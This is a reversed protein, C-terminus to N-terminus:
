MPGGSVTPVPASAHQLARAALPQLGEPRRDPAGPQRQRRLVHAGALRRAELLVRADRRALQHREGSGGVAITPPASMSAMPRRRPSRSARARTGSSTASTDNSSGTDASRSSGGTVDSSRWSRSSPRRAASASSRASSPSPRRAPSRHAHRQRQLARREHPQSNVSPSRRICVKEDTQLDIAAVAAPSSLSPAPSRSRRSRAPSSPVRACRRGVAAHELVEGVEPHARPQTTAASMLSSRRACASRTPKSAVVSSQRATDLVRADLDDADRQGFTSAGRPRPRRARPRCARRPRSAPRARRRPCPPPPRPRARARADDAADAEAVAERGGDLVGARQDRRALDAVDVVVAADEEGVVGVPRVGGGRPPEQARSAPEPASPSRIACMTSM